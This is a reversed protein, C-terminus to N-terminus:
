YVHDEIIDLNENELKSGKLKLFLQVILQKLKKMQEAELKLRKEELAIKIKQEVTLSDYLKEQSGNKSLSGSQSHHLFGSSRHQSNHGRIQTMQAELAVRKQKKEQIMKKFYDINKKLQM